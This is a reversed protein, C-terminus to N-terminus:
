DYLSIPIQLSIFIVKENPAEFYIELFFIFVHLPLPYVHGSGANHLGKVWYFLRKSASRKSYNDAAV